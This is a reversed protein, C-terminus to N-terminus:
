HGFRMNDLYYLGSGINTNLSISFSFDAHSENLASLVNQPLRFSVASFQELLLSTLDVFGIYQNYINASPCNIYM